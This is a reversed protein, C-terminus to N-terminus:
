IAMPVSINKMPSYGILEIDSFTFDTLSDCQRKVVLKPFPTPSRELNELVGKYHTSYIHTDGTMITLEGPTLDIGNLNCILHVLFAGTCVNWNNALFYDSSRMNLLINLKKRAIDVYFQYQYLCSPLTANHLTSPNWLTILIRRSTPDHKILRIVNDIQDYGQYTYDHECGKYIAGFHRFNFGYTEGMDGEKYRGLARNDLFERSTNGDWIHIGKEQLIANDTKGSLYFMLEEFIGRVFMRKTTMLPFTDSLDYKWSMGFISKTDIGTRNERLEGHNYIDRLGQLYNMEEKNEWAGDRSLETFRFHIGNEEHFPSVKDLKFNSNTSDIDFFTDCEYDNYIDTIYLRQIRDSYVRMCETYLEGGGIIFIERDTDLSELANVLSDFVLVGESASVSYSNRTLIVNLRNNLPRFKEPISEWTKRGMIVVGGSTKEKFYQLDKKLHWPIGGEFGIGNNKKCRAVILNM